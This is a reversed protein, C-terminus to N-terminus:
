SLKMYFSNDGRKVPLPKVAIGNRATRRISLGHASIESVFQEGHATKGDQVFDPQQEVTGLTWFAPM